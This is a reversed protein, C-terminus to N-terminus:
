VLIKLRYSLYKKKRQIIKLDGDLKYKLSELIHEILLLIEDIKLKLIM